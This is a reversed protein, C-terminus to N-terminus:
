AESGATERGEECSSASMTAGTVAAPAVSTGAKAQALGAASLGRRRSFGAPAAGRRGPVGAGGALRVRSRRRGTGRGAELSGGGRVAGASPAARGAGRARARRTVSRSPPRLDAARPSRASSRTRLDGAGGLARVRHRSRGGGGGARGGSPRRRRGGPHRLQSALRGGPAGRPGAREPSPRRPRGAAGSRAVLPDPSPGPAREALWLPGFGLDELGDVRAAFGAPDDTAVQTGLGFGIRVKM